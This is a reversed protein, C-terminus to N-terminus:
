KNIQYSLGANIFLGEFYIKHSLEALAYWRSTLKIKAGTGLNLSFWPSTERYAVEHGRENPISKYIPMTIFQVGLGFYFYPTVIMPKTQFKLGLPFISIVQNLAEKNNYQIYSSYSVGQIFSVKVTKEIFTKDVYFCFRQNSSGDWKVLPYGGLISFSIQKQEKYSSTPFQQKYLKNYKKINKVIEKKTYSIHKQKVIAASADQKIFTMYQLYKSDRAIFTKGDDAKIPKEKPKELHVIKNTIKNKLIYENDKKESQIIYVVIKGTLIRKAFFSQEISDKGNFEKIAFKEFIRGNNFGFGKLESSSYETIKTAPTDISFYIKKMLGDDTDEKMYGKITDNLSNVIYGKKFTQSFLHIPTTLIIFLFIVFYLIKM